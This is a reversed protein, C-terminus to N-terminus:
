NIRLWMYCTIDVGILTRGQGFPVWEGIFHVSPNQPSLSLYISGVPYIDIKGRFYVNYEQSVEFRKKSNDLSTKINNGVLM